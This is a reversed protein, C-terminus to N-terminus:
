RPEAVETACGFKISVSANAAGQMADCTDPCVSIKSPDSPDDYYWGDAVSSCEAPSNVYGIPEPSGGDLSVEVNVRTADFVEGEPAAPIDWECALVAGAALQTSVADWVPQFAQQCLDGFVGGTWQQLKKYEKGEDAAPPCSSTSAVIAHFKYDTYMGGQALVAQHFETAKTGEADDDTIVIIHKAANDRMASQWSSFTNLIRSLADHSDVHQNIHQLIPPNDDNPCSGSGLPGPVCFGNESGPKGAIVVVHVDIGSATIQQAFGNLQQEVWQTEQDMSGSQDIALVIDAPQLQNQAQESVEACSGNNNAGQGGVASSGGQAFDGTGDGDGSGGPLESSEGTASCGAAVASSLALVGTALWYLTRMLM